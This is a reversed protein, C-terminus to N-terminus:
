VDRLVQVPDVVAAKIAPRLSALTGMLFGVPISLLIMKYPIVLKSLQFLPALLFAGFIGGMSGGVAGGLSLLGAEFIVIKLIWSKRFGVARMIGIEKRRESVTASITIWIILAGIFTIFLALARAFKKLQTVMEFRTQVVRKISTVRAKPMVTGIQNVIDEVPCDKCLASVEFASVPKGPIGAWRWVNRIDTTVMYDEKDGTAPIVGAVTVSKGKIVLKDGPKKGMVKATESGLWVSNKDVKETDFSWWPKINALESLDTGMFVVENGEAEVAGYFVPLVSAIRDKLPISKIKGIDGYALSKKSVNTSGLSIDGYRISLADSGPVILINAGYKDLKEAIDKELSTSVANLSVFTGSSLFVILLVFFSRFKRRQLNKISIDWIKM